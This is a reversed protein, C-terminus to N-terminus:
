KGAPKAMAKAMKMMEENSRDGFAQLAAVKASDMSAYLSVSGFDTKVMDMKINPDQSFAGLKECHQCMPPMKGDKIGAMATRIEMMAKKFAEQYAPDIESVEMIGANVHHYSNKMHEMLGPQAAFKSCFTCKQLDFWPREAPAKDEASSIALMALLALGVLMIVSKKM